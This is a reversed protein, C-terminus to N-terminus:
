KKSKKRGLEPKLFEVAAVESNVEIWESHEELFEKFLEDARANLFCLRTLDLNQATTMLAALVKKHVNNDRECISMFEYFQLEDELSMPSDGRLRSASVGFYKSLKEISAKTPEGIGRQYRHLAAVGVGSDRAISNLSKKKVEDNLLTILNEPTVGSGTIRSM